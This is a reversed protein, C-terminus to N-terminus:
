LEFLVVGNCESAVKFHSRLIEEFGATQRMAFIEAVYYRAGKEKYKIVNELSQEEICLSFGKRDLWYFFYSENYAVPYGNDDKSKVASVLILSKQPIVEAMNTKCEYFQSTKLVGPKKLVQYLFGYTTYCAVLVFLSIIVLRGKFINLFNAPDKVPLRILPFYREYIEVTSIGLLISVSPVSFVHYYYAWNAATSRSAILYFVGAASLWLSPFIIDKNKLIKTSLLALIFIIPGFFTWIYFLEQRVIGKIFYPNTLFDWGIWAYQNSLGLSNGYLLYFKYSHIYWLISPIICLGGLLLLKPKFLFKWGKRIIILLVFLVGINIATVKCLIALATFVFALTYWILSQNDLWRMFSYAAFIYFFFMVSEPQITVSIVMLLPCMAFFFSSAIATKINFLYKSLRFFVIMAGISFIFSIIRGIPEWMGFVKYALAILFPYIPFESETYGPGAGGWDIQPYFFNMGNRYYNRAISSVDSERWSTTDIPHFLETSRVACGIVFIVIWIIRLHKM